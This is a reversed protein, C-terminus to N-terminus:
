QQCDKSDGCADVWLSYDDTAALNTEDAFKPSQAQDAAAVLSPVPAFKTGLIAIAANSNSASTIVEGGQSLLGDHVQQVSALVLYEQYNGGGTAEAACVPPTTKWVAEFSTPFAIKEYPGIGPQNLWRVFGDCDPGGATATPTSTAASPRATSTDGGDSGTATATPTSTAASPRATSTDGGDSGAATGCGALLLSASIVLATARLKKM